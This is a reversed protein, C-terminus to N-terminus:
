PMGDRVRCPLGAIRQRQTFMLDSNLAEPMNGELPGIVRRGGERWPTGASFLEGAEDTSHLRESGQGDKRGHKNDDGPLVM